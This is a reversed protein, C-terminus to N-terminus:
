SVIIILQFSPKKKISPVPVQSSEPIELVRAATLPLLWGVVSLCYMLETQESKESVSSRCPM